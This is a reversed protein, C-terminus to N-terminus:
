GPKINCRAEMDARLRRPLPWGLGAGDQKTTFFPQFLRKEVEPPIGKGTDAVEMVVVKTENGALLKRDPRARLTIRGDRGISSAANQVLNMIAQKLQTADARVQM